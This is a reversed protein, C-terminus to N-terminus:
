CSRSFNTSVLRLKGSTAHHCSSFTEIPATTIVVELEFILRGIGDRHDIRPKPFGIFSELPQLDGAVLARGPHDEQLDMRIEIVQASFRSKLLQQLTQLEWLARM